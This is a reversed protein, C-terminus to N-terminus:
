RPFNVGQPPPIVFQSTGLRVAARQSRAQGVPKGQKLAPKTVSDGIVPPAPTLQSQTPVDPIKPHLAKTVDDGVQDIEEGLGLLETGGLTLAGTVARFASGSCM